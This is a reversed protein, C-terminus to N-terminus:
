PVTPVTFYFASGQHPSSEVWVRGGHAEIIGKVIPLGLGAGRRKAAPAQWYRDFVRPLHDSEIGCGTDAVSFLVEGTRATAGLTISGGPKTFKIANGVLNEFVQLLRDRDAWVNPLDPLADLRLELSESSALQGQSALVDCLVANTLICKQAIYFSRAELLTVDILDQILRKMRGAADAIEDGIEREPGKVQLVAALATIAFLPNRLDHAVLGLMEDRARTAQRAAAESLRLAEEARKRADDARNLIRATTAFILLIAVIGVATFGTRVIGARESGVIEVTWSGILGVSLAVLIFAPALRRLMADGSSPSTTVRKILSDPQELLQGASVMLLGLATPLGFGIIPAGSFQYIPGAGFFRAMGFTFVILCAVLILWEPLRVRKTTRLEFALIGASILTLALTVPPAARGPYPRQVPGEIRVFLQDVSFPLNFVHEAITALSIALVVIAALTPAWRLVWGSGAAHHLMGGLGLLMLAVATNPVMPVITVMPAMGTLRGSLGIAGLAISALYLSQAIRGLRENPSVPIPQAQLAM